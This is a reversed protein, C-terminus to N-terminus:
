ANRTNLPPIRTQLENVRRPPYGQETAYYPAYECEPEHYEGVPKGCGLCRAVSSRETVPM